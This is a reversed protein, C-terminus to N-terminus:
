REVKLDRYRPSEREAQTPLRTVGGRTSSVDRSKPDTTPENYGGGSKERDEPDVRSARLGGPPTGLCPTVASSLSEETFSRASRWTGLHRSTTRPRTTTPEHTGAEPAFPGSFGPWLATAMVSLRCWRRAM